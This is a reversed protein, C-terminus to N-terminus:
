RNQPSPLPCSLRRPFSPSLSLSIQTARQSIRLPSLHWCMHCYSCSGSCFPTTLPATEAWKRTPPAVTPLLTTYSNPSSKTSYKSSVNSSMASRTPGSLSFPSSFSLGVYMYMYTCHVCPFSFPSQYM